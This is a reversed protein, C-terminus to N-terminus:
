PKPYFNELLKRIKKIRICVAARTIHLAQGIVEETQDLYFRKYAIIQDTEDLTSIAFFFDLNDSNYDAQAQVAALSQDDELSKKYKDNQSKAINEAIKLVWNYGDQKPNFSRIYKDIKLYTEAAVDEAFDKNYLYYKAVALLHNNTIEFLRRMQSKDGNKLQLLCDNVEKALKSM